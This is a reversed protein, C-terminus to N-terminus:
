KRIEVKEGKSMAIFFPVAVPKVTEQEGDTCGLRATLTHSFIVLPLAPRARVSLSM